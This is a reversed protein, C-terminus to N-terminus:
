KLVKVARLLGETVLEYLGFDKFFVVYQRLEYACIAAIIVVGVLAQRRGFWGAVTWIQVAALARLPLDWITAYRLNMGYKVNCMILYSFAIFASLYLLPKSAKASTFLAGIALCLIVPSVILMDILYRHWPGDGTMIAYQLNHAKSVLLRYIEIFSGVGGCHLESRGVEL